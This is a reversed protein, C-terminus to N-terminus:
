YFCIEFSVVSHMFIDMNYEDDFLLFSLKQVEPLMQRTKEMMMKFFGLVLCFGGLSYRYSINLIVIIKLGNWLYIWESSFFLNKCLTLWSGLTYSAGVGTWQHFVVATKNHELVAYGSHTSIAIAM